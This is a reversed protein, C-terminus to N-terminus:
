RLIWRDSNQSSSSTRGFSRTGSPAPSFSSIEAWAPPRDSSATSTPPLRCRPLRATWSTWTRSTRRGSRGPARPWSAFRTFWETFGSESSSPVVVETEAARQALGLLAVSGEDLLRRDHGVDVGDTGTVLGLVHARLDLREEALMREADDYGRAARGTTARRLAGPDPDCVAVLEVDPLEDYVRVHNRGMTGLGVVGARLPRAADTAVRPASGDTM